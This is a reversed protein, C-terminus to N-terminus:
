SSFYQVSFTKIKEFLVFVFIFIYKKALIVHIESGSNDLNHFRQGQGMLFKDMFDQFTGPDDLFAAMKHYHFSSVMADKPNRTVYIVKLLCFM